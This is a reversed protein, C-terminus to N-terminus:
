VAVDAINLIQITYKNGVQANIGGNDPDTQHCILKVNFYKKLDIGSQFKQKQRVLTHAANYGIYKFLFFIAVYVKVLKQLDSYM